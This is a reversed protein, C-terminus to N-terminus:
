LSRSGAGKNQHAASVNGGSSGFSVCSYLPASNDEETNENPILIHKAGASLKVPGSRLVFRSNSKTNSNDLAARAMGTGPNRSPLTASARSDIGQVIQDRHSRTFSASSRPQVTSSASYVGFSQPLNARYDSSPAHQVMTPTFPASSSATRTSHDSYYHWPPSNQLFAANGQNSLPPCRLLTNRHMQMNTFDRRRDEYVSPDGSLINATLLPHSVNHPTRYGFHAQATTASSASVNPISQTQLSIFPQGQRPLELVMKTTLHDATPSTRKQAAEPLYDVGTNSVTLDHGMLRLTQGAPSSVQQMNMESHFNQKESHSLNCERFQLSSSEGGTSLQSVGRQMTMSCWNQQLQVSDQFSNQLACPSKGKSSTDLDTAHRRQEQGHQDFSSDKHNTRGNDLVQQDM